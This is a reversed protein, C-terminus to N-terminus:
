IGLRSVKATPTPLSEAFIGALAKVLERRIGDHLLKPAQVEFDM